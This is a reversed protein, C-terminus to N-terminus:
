GLGGASTKRLESGLCLPHDLEEHVPPRTLTIQEVVFWGKFFEVPFGEIGAFPHVHFRTDTFYAVEHLAWESPRLM